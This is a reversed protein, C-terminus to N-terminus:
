SFESLAIQGSAQACGPPIDFTAQYLHIDSYGRSHLYRKFQARFGRNQPRALRILYHTWNKEIRASHRFVQHPNFPIKRIPDVVQGDPTQASILVTYVTTSPARFLGWEQPIMMFASAKSLWSPTNTALFTRIGNPIRSNNLASQHLCWSLMVLGVGEWLLQTHHRRPLRALPHFNPMVRAWDRSPIFLLATALYVPAFVGLNLFLAFGSHLFLMGLCMLRKAWLSTISLLACCALLFELGLVGFSIPTFIPCLSSDRLSAGVVTAIWPDWLVSRVADGTHWAIGTKQFANLFYLIAINMAIAAPTIRNASERLWHRRYFIKADLSWSSGLPLLAGWFTFLRLSCDSGTDVMPNRHYLAVLCICALVKMWRTLFGLTLSTYVLAIGAFAWRVAHPSSTYDLFSWRVQGPIMSVPLVGSDTYLADLLGHASRLYLDFLLTVGLAIRFLAVSRPDFGAHHRIRHLFANFPAPRLQNM